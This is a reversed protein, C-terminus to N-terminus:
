YFFSMYIYKCINVNLYVYIFRYERMFIHMYMGGAVCIPSLLGDFLTGIFEFNLDEKHLSCIDRILDQSQDKSLIQRNVRQILEFQPHSILVGRKGGERDLYYNFKVIFKLFVIHSSVLTLVFYLYRGISFIIKFRVSVILHCSSVV